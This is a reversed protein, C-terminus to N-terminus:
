GKLLSTTDLRLVKAEKENDQLKPFQLKMSRINAFYPSDLVIKSKLSNWFQYLQPLAIM